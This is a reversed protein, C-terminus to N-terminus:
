KTQKSYLANIIIDQQYKPIDSRNRIYNKRDTETVTSNGARPKLTKFGAIVSDITSKNVGNSLINDYNDRSEKGIGDPYVTTNTSSNSDDEVARRALDVAQDRLANIQKDKERQPIDQTMIDKEQKRLDSIAKAVETLASLRRDEPTNAGSPIDETFNRDAVARSAADMTDYFDETVGSQYRPDAMFNKKAPKVISQSVIDSLNKPIGVTAPLATQALVGTYSNLLYDIQKPSMNLRQGIAIAVQSTSADYQNRPSRDKMTAPVIDRGAFDKNSALNVMLPAGINDTFPNQPAFNTALTEGFGKWPDKKGDMWRGMREFFAGMIAGNERTKPIKIFTKAWGKEDRDALNPVVYYTDKTRNDLDQYHPNNRNFALLLLAPGTVTLASKGLAALPRRKAQRFFKDVGQVYPNLYPVWSDVLKTVTGHRSFNVTIEAANFIAKKRGTATDGYKKITGLYEAFRPLAETVEGVGSMANKASRGAAMLKQGPTAGQKIAQRLLPKNNGSFGKETDYYGAKTGGLAEYTQWHKGNKSIEEAAQVLLKSYEVPNNEISNIYANPVDRLINRAIFWQNFGTVLAKFPNTIAKGVGYLAAVGESNTRRVLSDLAHYVDASIQMSVPKGGEYGTLQYLGARIEKLGIQDV